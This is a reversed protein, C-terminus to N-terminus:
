IHNDSRSKQGNTKYEHIQFVKLTEWLRSCDNVVNIYFVSERM